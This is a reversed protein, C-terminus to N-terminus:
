GSFGKLPLQLVRASPKLMQNVRIKKGGCQNTDTYNNKKKKGGNASQLESKAAPADIQSTSLDGSASSSSSSSSRIDQCILAADLPLGFKDATLKYGSSGASKHGVNCVCFSEAATATATASASVCLRQWLGGASACIKYM